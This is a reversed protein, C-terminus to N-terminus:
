LGQHQRFRKRYLFFFHIEIAVNLCTNQQWFKVKLIIILIVKVIHVNGITTIYVIKGSLLVLINIIRRVLLCMLM